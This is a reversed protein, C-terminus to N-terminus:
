APPLINLTKNICHQLQKEEMLADPSESRWIPIASNWHGDSKFQANDLYSGPAEGDLEDLSIKRSERRLRAKAENSTITLIWTKLSSRQEFQAINKHIAIWADQVADEAFADGVIARSIRLGM